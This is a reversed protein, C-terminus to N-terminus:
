LIHLRELLACPGNAWNTSCSVRLWRTAPELGEPIVLVFSHRDAYAVPKKKPFLLPFERLYRMFRNVRVHVYVRTFNSCFTFYKWKISYVKLKTLTLFHWNWCIFQRVMNFIARFRKLMFCAYSQNCISQVKKYRNQLSSQIRIISLLMLRHLM